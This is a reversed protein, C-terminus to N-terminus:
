HAAAAPPTAALWKLSRVTLALRTHGDERQEARVPLWGLSPAYWYQWTRGKGDADKRESTYIVTDLNGLATQLREGGVRRYMYHKVDRGDLLAYEAPQRDALLDVVPAIRISLVDQLGPELPLDLAAGRAFGTVRGHARDYHLEGNDKKAATGDELLYRDPEVGAPTVRFWCRERSDADVLLRALVSPYARTEYLWSNADAGPTLRLELDGAGLGRFSLHYVIQHARLPEADSTAAALLFAIATLAVSALHRM